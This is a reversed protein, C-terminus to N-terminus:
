EVSFRISKHKHLGWEEMEDELMAVQAPSFYNRWDGVTGKRFIVSKGNISMDLLYDSFCIKMNEFSTGDQIKELLEPSTDVQLYRALDSVTSLFDQKLDEYRVVHIDHRVSRVVKLWSSVHDFWSNYPLSGNLFLNLFGDFSGRYDIAKLNACFQFYSVAVDRPNRVCLVIKSKERLFNLPIREFPLHTCIVRPSPADNLVQHPTYELHYLYNKYRDTLNEVNQVMLNVIAQIWHTGSKPYTVILIDDSRAQFTPNKILNEVLINTAFYYGADEQVTISEGMGDTVQITKM